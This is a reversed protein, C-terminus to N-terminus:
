RKEFKLDTSNLIESQVGENHENPNLDGIELFTRLSVANHTDHMSYPYVNYKCRLDYWWLVSDMNPFTRNSNPYEGYRGTARAHLLNAQVLSLGQQHIPQYFRDILQPSQRILDIDENFLVFPDPIKKSRRYQKHLHYLLMRICNGKISGQMAGRSRTTEFWSAPLSTERGMQRLVQRNQEVHPHEEYGQLYNLSFLASFPIKASAYQEALQRYGRAVTEPREHIGSIPVVFSGPYRGELFGNVATRRVQSYDEASNVGYPDDQIPPANLHAEILDYLPVAESM